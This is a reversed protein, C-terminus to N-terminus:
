RDPAEVGAEGREEGQAQPVSSRCVCLLHCQRSLSIVKPHCPEIMARRTERSVVQVGGDVGRDERAPRPDGGRQGWSEAGGGELLGGKM